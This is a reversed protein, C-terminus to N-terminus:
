SVNVLATKNEQNSAKSMLFANRKEDIASRVLERARRSDFANPQYPEFDFDDFDIRSAAIIPEPLQFDPHWYCLRTNKSPLSHASGNLLHRPHLVSSKSNM